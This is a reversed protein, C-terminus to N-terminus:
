PSHFSWLLSVSLSSLLWVEVVVVDVVEIVGVVEEAAGVVSDGVEVVVGEGINEAGVGVGIGVGVGFM